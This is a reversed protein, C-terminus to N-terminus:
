RILFPDWYGLLEKKQKHQLEHVSNQQINEAFAYINEHDHKNNLCMCYELCYIGSLKVVFREEAIMREATREAFEKATFKAEVL